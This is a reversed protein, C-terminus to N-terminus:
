IVGVIVFTYCVQAHLSFFPQSSVFCFLKMKVAKLNIHTM